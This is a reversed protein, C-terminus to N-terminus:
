QKRHIYVIVANKGMYDSVKGKMSDLLPLVFSLAPHAKDNELKETLESAIDKAKSSFMNVGFARIEERLKNKIISVESDDIYFDVTPLLVLRKLTGCLKGGVCDFYRINELEDGFFDLRVPAEANIPFIHIIDGRVVFEGKTEIEEVRTYGLSVLSSILSEFSYEQGQLIEYHNIKKPILQLLSEITAVLFDAGLSLQYLAYIRSYLSDKNFAKNFLLVDDKAPLHVVRKGTFAMLERAVAKAMLEDKVVYVVPQNIVSAIHCKESFSVGFAATPIGSRVDAVLSNLQEFLNEPQIYKSLM